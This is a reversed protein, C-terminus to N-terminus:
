SVKLVGREELQLLLLQQLIFERTTDPHDLQVRELFPRAAEADARHLLARFTNAIFHAPDHSLSKIAKLSAALALEQESLDTGFPYDPLMGAKRYPAMIATLHEPTNRKASEPLAYDQPIKGRDRAAILLDEQFRGDAINILRRAVEGDSQGRLDAVGYETVVIDRLHRPITTYGYSSVVNSQLQKGEGRTSRICLISRAGPLDHAMAVFNYQGGVGSIVTGDELADSAVSGDLSVLMGTNIFRAGQRQASYLPYDLLLQNTRRVGTMCIEKRQRPTLDRLRQYFDRPGLFFGAHLLRGNRLVDGDVMALLADRVEADDMDNPMGSGDISLRDGGLKVEAPLIGWHQLHELSGKDLQRPMLGHERAYVFLREDIRKSISGENIGQQLTLNDYVRRKVVGREVLHLVGNVLMETSVYLGKSFAECHRPTSKARDLKDLLSSYAEGKEERLICVQALADGLAGIGIQLTGGDPILSSAHMAMAYDRAPVSANPVAFLTRDYAKNRVVLDFANVPVEADLEMYPLDAHIQALCLPRRRSARPLDLIELSLDANSSLSLALGEEEDRCAVLQVLVNVGLDLMDRAIHTYNSAIYSRQAAPRGKMSGARLYLETVRINDPLRADRYPAYFSLEEYDGFLRQRLPALFAAELDSAPKPVELCLATVIHLSLTPDSLAREYFANLLQVPKGLGLPAAIVLDKGQREITREVCEQTSNLIEAM